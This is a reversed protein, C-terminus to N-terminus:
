SPVYSAARVLRKIDRLGIKGKFFRDGANVGGLAECLDEADAAAVKSASDYGAEVLMRAFKPSVWQVRALDALRVLTELIAVDVDTSKLLETRSKISSAAKHLRATDRMGNEELKAIEGKPLWDFDKLAIPKPFYSEIERRLLVLYHVDIGTQNSVAELRRTNKLEKRLCLLNTIGQKELADLKVKIGDLLSSRSPVLDSAEIRKRLDELRVNQADIHYALFCRRKRSPRKAWLKFRVTNGAAVM